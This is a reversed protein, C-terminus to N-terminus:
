RMKSQFKLETLKGSDDRSIVLTLAGLDTPIDV